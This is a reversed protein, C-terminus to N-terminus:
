GDPFLNGEFMKRGVWLKTASKGDDKKVEKVTCFGPPILSAPEDPKMCWEERFKPRYKKEHMTFTEWILYGGPKLAKTAEQFVGPEWYRTAYILSFTDRPIEWALLDKSLSRFNPLLKRRMAEQEMAATAVDSIDVAWVLGKALNLAALELATGSPGSALELIDGQPLSLERIVELISHTEFHLTKSEYKSNWKIRDPHTIDVLM